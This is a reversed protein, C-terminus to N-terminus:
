EIRQTAEARLTFTSGSGFLNSMMSTFLPTDYTIRVTVPLTQHGPWDVFGPNGDVLFEINDETLEMGPAAAVIKDVVADEDGDVTLSAWRAGEHAAHEIELWQFFTIGFQTIGVLILLLPISILAFEVASAGLEGLAFIRLRKHMKSVVM